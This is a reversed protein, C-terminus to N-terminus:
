NCIWQAKSTIQDKPIFELTAILMYADPDVTFHRDIVHIVADAQHTERLDDCRFNKIRTTFKYSTDSFKRFIFGFTEIEVNALKM